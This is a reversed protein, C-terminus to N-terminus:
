PKIWGIQYEEFVPSIGLKQMFAAVLWHKGKLADHRDDVAVMCGSPLLPWITALEAMHHFSSDLNLQETWDFSDLYLLRISEPNEIKSLARVSDGCIFRVNSAQSSATEVAIDRIDISIVSLDPLRKALWDWVLTSQGQGGWNGRDWATGTEVIQNLKGQVVSKEVHEVMKAMTHSRYCLDRFMKSSIFEESVM